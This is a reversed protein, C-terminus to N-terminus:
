KNVAKKLAAGAKFKVGKSAKIKIKVGTAPNIGDRAARKTVTFNGFGIIQVGGNKIIGKELAAVVADVAREAGAKTTEEGLTKQVEAILDAKNM